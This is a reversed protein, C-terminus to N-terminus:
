VDREGQILSWHNHVIRWAAGRRLYVESCNWPLRSLVSGDPNLRTSFFRYSLVAMDGLAQVQPDIFEMVEYFIKGTRLAYEARMAELGDIRQSTGSDFYTVQPDYLDLYGGPDGQRWRLMAARELALLEGALGEEAPPDLTVPVPVEVRAPRHHRQFAFHGHVIRWQGQRRFYVETVNWPTQGLVAGDPGLRTSRYNYSLVAADGSQVVLPNIFESGQYHVQGRLKEMFASYEALGVIPRTIGPDIYTIDDASLEVFGGPDGQRWREMAQTELTLIEYQM